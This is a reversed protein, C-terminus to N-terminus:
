RSTLLSCIISIYCVGNRIVTTVESGKITTVNPGKVTMSELHPTMQDLDVLVINWTTEALKCDYFPPRIFNWLMKAIGCPSPLSPCVLIVDSLCM